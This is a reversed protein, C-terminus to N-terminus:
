ANQMLLLYYSISRIEVYSAQYSDRSIVAVTDLDGQWGKFDTDRTTNRLLSIMQSVPSLPEKAATEETVPEGYRKTFVSQMFRYFDAEADSFVMIEINFLLDEHFAFSVFADFENITMRCVLGTAGTEPDEPEQILGETFMARITEKEMGLSVGFLEFNSPVEAYAQRAAPSFVLSIALLFSGILKLKKRYM